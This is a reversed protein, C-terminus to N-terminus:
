ENGLMSKLVHIELILRDIDEFDNGAYYGRIKNEPDMLVMFGNCKWNKFKEDTSDSILFACNAIELRVEDSLLTGRDADNSVEYFELFTEASLDAEIRSIQNEFFNLNQKCDPFWFIAKAKVPNKNPFYKFFVQPGRTECGSLSPFADEYFVPLKYQNTGFYKLFLAIGIPLLIALFLILRKL